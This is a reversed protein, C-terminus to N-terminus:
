IIGESKWAEGFEEGNGQQQEQQEPVNDLAPYNNDDTTIGICRLVDMDEETPNMIQGSPLVLFNGEKNIGDIRKDSETGDIPQMAARKCAPLETYDFPFEKRGEEVVHIYLRSAFFDVGIFYGHLFYNVPVEM